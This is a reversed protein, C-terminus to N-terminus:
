ALVLKGIGANLRKTPTKISYVYYSRYSIEKIILNNNLNYGNSPYVCYRNNSENILIYENDLGKNYIFYLQQTLVKNNTYILRNNRSIELHIVFRQIKIHSMNLIEEFIGEEQYKTFLNILRKKTITITYENNIEKWDIIENKYIKYLLNIVNTFVNYDNTTITYYGNYLNGNYIFYCLVFIEIDSFERNDENYSYKFPFEYKLTQSDIVEKNIKMITDHITMVKSNHLVDVVGYFSNIRYFKEKTRKRKINQINMWKDDAWIEINKIPGSHESNTEFCKLFCSKKKFSNHINKVAIIRIKKDIRVIVPTDDNIYSNSFM